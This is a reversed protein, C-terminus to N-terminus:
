VSRPPKFVVNKLFIVELHRAVKVAYKKVPDPIKSAEATIRAVKAYRKLSSDSVWHGRLKVEAVSRKNSLLDHSAGGHRLSYLCANLNQMGLLTLHRKFLNSVHRSTFPWLPGNPNQQKIVNFLCAAWPEHDWTVAQDFLGTKSAGQAELPNLNFLWYGMMVIPGGSPAILQHVKLRSFVGPRVLTRFLALLFFAEWMLGSYTMSGIVAMLGLFPFPLRQQPPCLKTWGKASRIAKPLDVRLVSILTPVLFKLASVLKLGVHSPEGDLYLQDMYECLVSDLQQRSNWMRRRSVCWLCFTVMM